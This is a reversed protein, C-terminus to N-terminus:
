EAKNIKVTIGVLYGAAFTIAMLVARPLEVEWILFNLSVNSFNQLLFILALATIIVTISFMKKM